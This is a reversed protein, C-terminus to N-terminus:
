KEEAPEEDQSIASPEAEEKKVMDCNGDLVAGNNIILAPTKINGMVIGKEKIEVRDVAKINGKVKGNIIITGVVIDASISADEGVILTDKSIVEGEVEGDIRVIGEFTLVGKFRTGHGLLTKIDSVM